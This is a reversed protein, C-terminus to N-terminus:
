PRAIREASGADAREFADASMRAAAAWGQMREVVDTLRDGILVPAAIGATASGRLDDPNLTPWRMEAIETAAGMVRDAIARLRALDVETIEGM